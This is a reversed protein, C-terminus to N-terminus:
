KPVIPASVPDETPPLYPGMTSLVEAAPHYNLTLEVPTYEDPLDPLLEQGLQERLANRAEWQLAYFQQATLEPGDAKMDFLRNDLTRREQHLENFTETLSQQQGAELRESVEQLNDKFDKQRPDLLQSEKAELFERYETPMVSRYYNAAQVLDVLEQEVPMGRDLRADLFEVMYNYITPKRPLVDRDPIFLGNEMREREEGFETAIIMAKQELTLADGVFLGGLPDAVCAVALVPDGGTSPVVKVFDFKYVENNPPNERKNWERLYTVIDDASPEVGNEAAMEFLNLESVVGPTSGDEDAELGLMLSPFEETGGYFSWASNFRAVQGSVEGTYKSVDSDSFPVKMLSGFGFTRIKGTTCIEETVKDLTEQDEIGLYTEIADKIQQIEADSFKPNQAQQAGQELLNINIPQSSVISNLDNDNGFAGTGGIVVLAAAAFQKVLNM